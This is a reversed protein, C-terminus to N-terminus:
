LAVSHEFAGSKADSTGGTPEAPDIGKGDDAGAQENDNFSIL